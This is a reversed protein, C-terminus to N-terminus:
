KRQWRKIAPADQDRNQRISERRGKGPELRVAQYDQDTKQDHQWQQTSLQGNVETDNGSEEGNRRARYDLRYKEEGAVRLRV